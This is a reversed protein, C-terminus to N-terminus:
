NASHTKLFINKFEDIGTWGELKWWQDENGRWYFAPRSWDKAYEPIDREHYEFSMPLGDREADSLGEWWTLFRQCPPCYEPSGFVQVVSKEDISQSVSGTNSPSEGTSRSSLRRASALAVVGQDFAREIGTREVRSELDAFECGSAFLILVIAPGWLNKFMGNGKGSLGELDMDPLCHFM